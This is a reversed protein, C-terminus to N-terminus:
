VHMLKSYVVKVNKNTQEIIENMSGKKLESLESIVYKINESNNREKRVINPSLYPCDTELVIRELPMQRIAERLDKNSLYTCTGGM